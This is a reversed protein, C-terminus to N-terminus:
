LRGFLDLEVLSRCSMAVLRKMLAIQEPGTADAMAEDASHPPSM